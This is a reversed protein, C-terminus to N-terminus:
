KIQNTQFLHMNEVYLVKFYSVIKVSALIQKFIDSLWIRRFHGISLWFFWFRMGRYLPDGLSVQDRPLLIDALETAWFENLVTFLGETNQM